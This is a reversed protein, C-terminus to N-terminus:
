RVPLGRSIDQALHSSRIYERRSRTYGQRRVEFHFWCDQEGRFRDAIEVFESVTMEPLENFNVCTRSGTEQSRVVYSSPPQAYGQRYLCCKFDVNSASGFSSRIQEAAPSNEEPLCSVLHLEIDEEDSSRSQDAKLLQQLVELTNPCNGGRRIQVSTARLKDDEGPFHPVSNLLTSTHAESETGKSWSGRLCFTKLAVYHARLFAFPVQTSSLSVHPHHGRLLGRYLYSAEDRVSPFDSGPLLGFASSSM